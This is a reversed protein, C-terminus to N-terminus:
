PAVPPRSLRAAADRDLSWTGGRALRAPIRDPPEAGELARRVAEAKDSGAALVMVQRAAAIVPPTITLREVPPHPGSVPVVLRHELLAPSDPFLSATHGDSGIGLLLVDLRRPLLRGYEAAAQERDTREAEMRHAQIAPAPIRSLLAEHAMHYNSRPDDPPVAREDGFFFRVRSWDVRAVALHRYAAAPTRGGALCFTCDGRAEIAAGIARGLWEAARAALEEASGAVIVAGM